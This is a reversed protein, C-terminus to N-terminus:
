VDCMFCRRKASLLSKIARRGKFVTFPSNQLLSYFKPDKYVYQWRKPLIRKLSPTYPTCKTVFPLLREMTVWKKNRYLVELRTNHTLSHLKSLISKPYARKEFQKILKNQYHKYMAPSKTNRIYKELYM